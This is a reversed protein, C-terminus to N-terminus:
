EDASGAALRRERWRKRAGSIARGMRRYRMWGVTMVVAAGPLCALGTVLFWARQSFHIISIGAIILGMGARLYALLTRENALMTRDMALEDRLTLQSRDFQSYAFEEAM